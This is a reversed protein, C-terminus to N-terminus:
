APVAEERVHLLFPTQRNRWDEESLFVRSISIGFKLSLSSILESTRTVEEGYKKLKDLIILVDIDSESDSTGRAYSGYLYVGKLRVGYLEMLGNKVDAMITQVSHPM